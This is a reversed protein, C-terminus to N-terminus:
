QVQACRPTRISRPKWRQRFINAGGRLIMDTKRDALYLYGDEDMWGM